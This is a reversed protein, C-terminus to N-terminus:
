RFFTGYVWSILALLVMLGIILLTIDTRNGFHTSGTDREPQKEAEAQKRGFIKRWLVSALPVVTVLLAILAFGGMAPEEKLFNLFEM